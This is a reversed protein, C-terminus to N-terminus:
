KKTWEGSPLQISDGPRAKDRQVEGFVAEVQALGESPLGNQTVIAKYITKRDANEARVIAPEESSMAKLYGRSTEGIRGAAKLEQLENYRSQRGSLAREVEPTREKLDYTAAYAQLSVTLFLATLITKLFLNKTKM